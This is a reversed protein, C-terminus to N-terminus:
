KLFLVMPIVKWQLTKMTHYASHTHSCEQPKSPRIFMNNDQLKRWTHMDLFVILRGVLQGLVLNGKWTAKCTTQMYVRTYQLGLVTSKDTHIPMYVSVDGEIDEWLGM